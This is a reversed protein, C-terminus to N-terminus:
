LRSTWARTTAGFLMGPSLGQQLREFRCRWLWAQRRREFPTPRTIPKESLGIAKCGPQSIGLLRRNCASPVLATGHPHHGRTPSGPYHVLERNIPMHVCGFLVKGPKYAPLDKGTLPMYVDAEYLKPAGIGEGTAM